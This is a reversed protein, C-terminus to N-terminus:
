GRVQMRRKAAAANTAKRLSTLQVETLPPYNSKAIALAKTTDDNVRRYLQIAEIRNLRSCEQIQAFAAEEEDTWGKDTKPNIWM